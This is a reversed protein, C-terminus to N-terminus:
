RAPDPPTPPYQGYVGFSNGSIYARNQADARFAINAQEARRDVAREHARYGLYGLGAIPVLGLFVPWHTIGLCLLFLGGIAAGVIAANSGTPQGALYVRRNGVIAVILWVPLWMGCTLLTLVLHLAHNPGTAVILPAPAGVNNNIVISPQPPPPPANITWQQGDFYRQGPAGSPDPYWGPQPAPAPYSM